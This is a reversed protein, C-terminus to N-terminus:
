PWGKDVAMLWADDWKRFEALSHERTEGLINVYHDHNNGKMTKRAPEGLGMPVDWERKVGDPWSDWARM